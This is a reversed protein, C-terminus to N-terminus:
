KGRKRFLDLWEDVEDQGLRREGSKGKEPSRDQNAPDAKAKKRGSKKRRVPKPPPKLEPEPGFLEMWEAVEESSLAPKESEEVKPKPPAEEKGVLLEAFAESLLVAMKRAAAAALVVRDSSVLTYEPPNPVKKIRSILLSDATKGEPAFVVEIRSTSLRQQYGGPLGHDFIVTVERKLRAVAWGKLLLILKVEDDPDDLSIDPMKAILNHGDILYHM